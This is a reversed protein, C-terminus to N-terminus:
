QTQFGVRACRGWWLGTGMEASPLGVKKSQTAPGLSSLGDQGGTGKEDGLTSAPGSLEGTLVSQSDLAKKWAGEWRWPGWQQKQGLAQCMSKGQVTM